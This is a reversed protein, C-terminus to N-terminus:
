LHDTTGGLDYVANVVSTWHSGHEYSLEVTYPQAITMSTLQCCSDLPFLCLVSSCRASGPVFTDPATNEWM